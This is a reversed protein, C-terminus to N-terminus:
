ISFPSERIKQPVAFGKNRCRGAEPCCGAQFPQAVGGALQEKERVIKLLLAETGAPGPVICRNNGPPVTKKGM